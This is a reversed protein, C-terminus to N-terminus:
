ARALTAISVRVGSIGTLTRAASALTAGTTLVDDVLLIHKDTLAEKNLIDFIGEVNDYRDLRAHMTQSSTEVTRVMSVSDM